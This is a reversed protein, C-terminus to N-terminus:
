PSLNGLEIKGLSLVELNKKEVKKGRSNRVSM